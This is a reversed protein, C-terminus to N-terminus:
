KCESPAYKAPVGTGTIGRNVLGRSQATNSTATACAWDLAGQLGATPVGGQVNPSFNITNGDLGVPIGNGANAEVQVSVTWPTGAIAVVNQVYKSSKESTATSNISAAAASLGSMGGSQYAETISSKASSGAIIAESIKTRVTYDQYAPLAIAALIGIIAVVIMLEILTFGGQQVKLM